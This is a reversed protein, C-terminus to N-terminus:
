TRCWGPRPASSARGSSRGRRPRPGPSRSRGPRPRSCRRRYSRDVEGDDMPSLVLGLLPQQPRVEGLPLRDAVALHETRSPAQSRGRRPPSGRPASCCRARRAPAPRRPPPSRARMRPTGKTTEVAGVAHGAGLRGLLQQLHQLPGPLSVCRQGHDPRVPRHHRPPGAAAGDVARGSRPRRLRRDRRSSARRGPRDAGSPGRGPRVPRVPPRPPLGGGRQLEDRRPCAARRRLRLGVADLASHVRLTIM